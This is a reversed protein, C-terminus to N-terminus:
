NSCATITALHEPRQKWLASCERYKQAPTWLPHHLWCFVVGDAPSTLAFVSSGTFSTMPIISENFSVLSGSLGMNPPFWLLRSQLRCMIVVRLNHVSCLGGNNQQFDTEVPRPPKPVFLDFGKEVQESTCATPAATPNTVHVFMMHIHCHHSSDCDPRKQVSIELVIAM